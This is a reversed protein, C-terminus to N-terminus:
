PDARASDASAPEARRRFAVRASTRATGREVLSSIRVVDGTHPAHVFQGGGIYIGSTASAASSSSIALSRTPRLGGANGHQVAVGRPAPALGRGARLRLEHLGLLRFGTSPEFRGLRVPHRPVAARHRRRPRLARAPADPRRLDPRRRGTTRRSRRSAQAALQAAQARARAQRRACGPAAGGRRADGRDRGQRVRAAAQQEAIQSEIYQKQSAQEAVIQAQDARAEQLNERRTEVEKRYSKVTHLIQTDQSSVREIADLRAIIDDLSQSGLIVELTSDGEGNVYLDRLREQIREQSVVLSKRAAKLHKANSVLDADIRELEVNAYNWAEITAELEHGMSEVEAVIAEAQQRKSEITQAPPRDPPLCSGPPSKGCRSNRDADM